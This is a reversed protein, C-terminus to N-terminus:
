SPFLLKGVQIRIEDKKRDLLREFTYDITIKGDASQMLIGGISKLSGQVALNEQKAIDRDRDQSVSVTCTNGLRQKGEKLLTTIFRRYHDEPLSRLKELAQSFCQEIVEERANMMDRRVEQTAKSILIKKANESDLQGKSLIAEAEKQAEAKATKITTQSQREAEAMLHQVQTEADSNIREIIKEASM